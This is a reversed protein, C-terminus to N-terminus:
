KNLIKTSIAEKIHSYRGQANMEYDAAGDSPEQQSPGKEWLWESRM